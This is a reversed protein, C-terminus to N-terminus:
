YPFCYAVGHIGYEVCNGTCKQRCNDMGSLMVDNLSYDMGYENPFYTVDDFVKDYFYQDDISMRGNFTTTYKNQEFREVNLAVRYILAVGLVFIMALVGVFVVFM